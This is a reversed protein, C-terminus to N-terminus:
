KQYKSAITKMKARFSKEITLMQSKFEQRYKKMEQRQEKHGNRKGKTGQREARMKEQHSKLQSTDSFNLSDIANKRDEIKQLREIHMKEMNEKRITFLKKEHDLRLRYSEEHFAKFEKILGQKVSAPVKENEMFKIISQVPKSRKERKGRREGREKGQRDGEGYRDEGGGKNGRGAFSLQTMSLALILAFILNKM